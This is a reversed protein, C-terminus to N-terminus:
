EVEQLGTGSFAYALVANRIASTEAAIRERLDQDLVENRFRAEERRLEDSTMEHLPTLECLIQDGNPRIEFSFRDTLRYAARKIAEVSYVSAALALTLRPAGHSETITNM